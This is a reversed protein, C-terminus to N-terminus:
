RNRGDVMKIRLEIISEIRGLEDQLKEALLRLERLTMESLPTEPVDLYDSWDEFPIWHKRNRPM